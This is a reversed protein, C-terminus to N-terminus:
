RRRRRLYQELYPSERRESLADIPSGTACMVNADLLPHAHVQLPDDLVGAFALRSIAGGVGAIIDAVQVRADSRSDVFNVGRLEAGPHWFGHVPFPRAAASILEGVSDPGISGYDDAVFELPVDDLRITWAQAVAVLSPWMPDIERMASTPAAALESVIDRRAWMRHLMRGTTGDQCSTRADRLAAFFTDPAPRERGTRRHGRLLTAFSRLLNVWTQPGIAAAANNALHDARARGHLGVDVLDGGLLVDVLKATVFYTKDVLHINGADSLTELASLLAPRHRERLAIKSKFEPAQTPMDRRLRDMFAEADGLSLNTSALVFVPDLADLLNDGESGSEDCAIVTTHPAQDM